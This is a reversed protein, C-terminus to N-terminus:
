IFRYNNFLFVPFCTFFVSTSLCFTSLSSLRFLVPPHPFKRWLHTLALLGAFLLPGLDLRWRHSCTEPWTLLLRCSFDTSLFCSSLSICSYSGRCQARQFCSCRRVKSHGLRAGPRVCLLHEIFAQSGVCCLLPRWQM